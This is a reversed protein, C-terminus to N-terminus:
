LYLYLIARARAQFPLVIKKSKLDFYFFISSLRNTSGPWPRVISVSFYEKLQIYKHHLLYIM